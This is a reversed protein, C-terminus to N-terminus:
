IKTPSTAVSYSPIKNIVDKLTMLTIKQGKHDKEMRNPDLKSGNSDMIMLLSANIKNQDQNTTLKPYGTPQPLKDERASILSELKGNFISYTEQLSKIDSQIDTFQYNHSSNDYDTATVEYRAIRETLLSNTSKLNLIDKTIEEQKPMNIASNNKNLNKTTMIKLEAIKKSNMDKELELNANIENISTAFSNYQEKFPEKLTPIVNSRLKHQSLPSKLSSIDKKILENDTELVLIRGSHQALTDSTNAEYDMLMNKMPELLHNVTNLQDKLPELHTTFALNICQQMYKLDPSPNKIDFHDTQTTESITELTPHM